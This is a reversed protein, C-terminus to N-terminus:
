ETVHTLHAKGKEGINQCPQSFTPSGMACTAFCPERLTDDEEESLPEKGFQFKCSYDKFDPEIALDLGMNKQFFAETAKKCSNM